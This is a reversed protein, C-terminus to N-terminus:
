VRDATEYALQVLSIALFLIGIVEFGVFRRQSRRDSLENRGYVRLDQEETEFVPTENAPTVLTADIAYQGPNMPAYVTFNGTLLPQGSRIAGVTDLVGTTNLVQIAGIQTSNISAQANLQYRQAARAQTGDIWTLLVVGDTVNQASSITTENLGDIQGFVTWQCSYLSDGAVAADRVPQCSIGFVLQPGSNEPRLQPDGTGSQQSILVQNELGDEPVEAISPAFILGIQQAILFLGFSVAFGFVIIIIAVGGLQTSEESMTNDTTVPSSIISAM